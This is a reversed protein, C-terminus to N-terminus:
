LIAEFVSGVCYGLFLIISFAVLFLGTFWLPPEQKSSMPTLINNSRIKETVKHKM